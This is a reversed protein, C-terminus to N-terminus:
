YPLKCLYKNTGKQQSIQFLHSSNIAIVHILISQVITWMDSFTEYKQNDEVKSSTELIYYEFRHFRCHQIGISYIIVLVFLEFEVNVTQYTKNERGSQLM